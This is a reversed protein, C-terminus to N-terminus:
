HNPLLQLDVVVPSHDSMGGKVVGASMAAFHHSYWVYDIRNLAINIGVPHITHGLGWGAERYGDQLRDAFRAYAMTTETFNCDCMVLVPVDAEPLASLVRDIQEMRIQEREAIRGPWDAIPVEALLTPVLHLVFVHVEVGDIDVIAHRSLDNWPLNLRESAIIPYRSFLGVELRHEVPLLTHYPYMESALAPEIEGSNAPILEQLGVLDAHQSLITDTVADYNTNINLVNFTMVRLPLGSHTGGAPLNPLFLEGYLLGFIATPVALLALSRWNRRLASIAGIVLIPLFLYKAMSNVIWLLWHGDHLIAKAVFWTLVVIVYLASARRLLAGPSSSSSM